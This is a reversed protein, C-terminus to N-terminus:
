ALARRVGEPLRARCSAAVVANDQSEAFDATNQQNVQQTSQGPPFLSSRPVVVEDSQLWASLADFVTLKSTSYSM